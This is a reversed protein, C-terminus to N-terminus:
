HSKPGGTNCFTEEVTGDSANIVHTVQGNALVQKFNNRGTLSDSDAVSHPAQRGHSSLFAAHTAQM